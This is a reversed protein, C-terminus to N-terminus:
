LIPLLYDNLTNNWVDQTHVKRERKREREREREGKRGRGVRERGRCRELLIFIERREWMVLSM